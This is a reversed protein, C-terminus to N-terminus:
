AILLPLLRTATAPTTATTTASAAGPTALASLLLVLVFLLSTVFRPSGLSINARGFAFVLQGGASKDHGGFLTVFLPPWLPPSVGITIGVAGVYAAKPAPLRPSLRRPLRRLRVPMSGVGVDGFAIRRRGKSTPYTWAAASFHGRLAIQGDGIIAPHSILWYIQRFFRQRFRDARSPRRDPRADSPPM